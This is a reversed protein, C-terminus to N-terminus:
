SSLHKISRKINLFVFKLQKSEDELTNMKEELDEVKERWEEVNDETCNTLVEEVTAGGVFYNSFVGVLVFSLTRM